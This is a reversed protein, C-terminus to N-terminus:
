SRSIKPQPHTGLVPQPSHLQSRAPLDLQGISLIFPLEAAILGIHAHEASESVAPICKRQPEATTEVNTAVRDAEGVLVIHAKHPQATHPLQTRDVERAPDASVQRSSATRCPQIRHQPHHPSVRKMHTYFDRM